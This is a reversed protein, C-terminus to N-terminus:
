LIKPNSANRKGFCLMYVSSPVNARIDESDVLEIFVMKSKVTNTNDNNKLVELEFSGFSSRPPIIFTGEEGNYEVGKVATSYIKQWDEGETGAPQVGTIRNANKDYYVFERVVYKGTLERDKHAGILQVSVTLKGIEPATNYNHYYYRTNYYQMTGSGRTPVFEVYDPGKYSRNEKECSCLGAFLFASILINLLIKM